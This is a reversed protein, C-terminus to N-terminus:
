PNERPKAVTDFYCQTTKYVAEAAAIWAQKWKPPRSNWAIPYDWFREFAEYAIRGRQKQENTM